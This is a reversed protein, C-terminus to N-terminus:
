YLFKTGLHVEKVEEFELVGPITIWLPRHWRFRISECIKQGVVTVRTCKFETLEFNDTRRLRRTRMRDKSNGTLVIGSFLKIRFCKAFLRSTGSNEYADTQTYPNTRYMCGFGNTCVSAAAYNHIHPLPYIGTVLAFDIGLFTIFLTM